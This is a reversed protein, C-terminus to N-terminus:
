SGARRLRGAPWLERLHSARDCRWRALVRQVDATARRDPEFDPRRECAAGGTHGQVARTWAIRAVTIQSDSVPGYVDRDARRAWVIQAARAAVRCQGQRLGLGRSAAAGLAEAHNRPDPRSGSPRSVEAGM